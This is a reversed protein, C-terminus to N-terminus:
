LGVTDVSIKHFHCGGKSASSQERGQLLPEKNPEFEVFQQGVLMM